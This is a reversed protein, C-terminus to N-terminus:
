TMNSVNKGRALVRLIGIVMLILMMWSSGSTTERSPTAHALLFVTSLISILIGGLLYLWNKFIVILVLAFLNIIFGLVSVYQTTNYNFAAIMLTIWAYYLSFFMLLIIVFFRFVAKM